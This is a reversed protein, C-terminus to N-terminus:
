KCPVERVVTEVFKPKVVKCLYNQIYDQAEEFSRFKKSIEYCDAFNCETQTITRWIKIGLYSKRVQIIFHNTELKGLNDYWTRELIRYKM